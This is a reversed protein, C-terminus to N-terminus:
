PASSSSPAIVHGTFSLTAQRGLSDQFTFTFEHDGITADNGLWVAVRGYLAQWECGFGSGELNGAAFSVAGVAGEFSVAIYHLTTTDGYDM